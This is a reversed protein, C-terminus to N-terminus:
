PQYEENSQEQEVGQPPPALSSDIDRASNKLRQIDDAFQLDLYPIFNDAMHLIQAKYEMNHNFEDLIIILADKLDYDSEALEPILGLSENEKGCVLYDKVLTLIELANQESQLGIEIRNRLLRMLIEPNPATHEDEVIEPPPNPIEHSLPTPMQQQMGGNLQPPIGAQNAFAPALKDIWDGIHDMTSKSAQVPQGNLSVPPVRSAQASSLLEQKLEEMNKMQKIIDTSSDLRDALRDSEERRKDENQQMIQMILDRNNGFASSFVPMVATVLGVLGTTLEAWNPGTKPANEPTQQSPASIALKRINDAVNSTKQEPQDDFDLILAPSTSVVDMKKRISINYEGSKKTAALLEDPLM